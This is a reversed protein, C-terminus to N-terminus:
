ALRGTLEQFRNAYEKLEYRQGRAEKSGPECARKMLYIEEGRGTPRRGEAVWDALVAAPVVYYDPRPKPTLNARKLRGVSPDLLVGLDVFLLLDFRAALDEARDTEVWGMTEAYSGGRVRVTLRQDVDFWHNPAGGAAEGLNEVLHSPFLQRLLADAAEVALRQSLTRREGPSLPPDERRLEAEMCGQLLSLEHAPPRWDPLFDRPLTM